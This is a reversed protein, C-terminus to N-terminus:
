INEVDQPNVDNMNGPIGDILVLPNNNNLTGIGRILINGYDKGPQGSNQQVYVGTVKGQIAASTTTVPRSVLDKTSVNEVAGTLNVKKQTGYGVVVVEDLMAAQQVLAINIATQSAVTVEQTNYGVFSFLLVQDASVKISYNGSIDSVTGNTTGKVVISVGPLTLGDKSDTVTGTITKQALVVQWSCFVILAMILTIKKM